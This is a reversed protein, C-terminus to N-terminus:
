AAGWTKAALMAADIAAIIGEHTNSPRTALFTRWREADRMVDQPVGPAPHTYANLADAILSADEVSATSAFFSGRPGKNVRGTDHQKGGISESSYTAVFPEAVPEPTAPQHAEAQQIATRLANIADIAKQRGGERFAVAENLAEIAQKMVEISM